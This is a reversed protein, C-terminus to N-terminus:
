RPDNIPTMRLIAVPVDISVSARREKSTVGIPTVPRSDFSLRRYRGECGAQIVACEEDGPQGSTLSDQEGGSPTSAAAAVTAASSSSYGFDYFGATKPSRDRNRRESNTNTISDNNNNNSINNANKRSSGPKTEKLRTLKAAFTEAIKRLANEDKSRKKQGAANPLSIQTSASSISKIDDLDDPVFSANDFPQKQKKPQELSDMLAPSNPDLLWTNQSTQQDESQLIAAVAVNQESVNPDLYDDKSSRRRTCRNPAKFCSSGRPLVCCARAFKTWCSEDSDGQQQGAGNELSIISLQRRIYAQAEIRADSGVSARSGVPLMDIPANLSLNSMRRLPPGVNVSSADPHHTAGTTSSSTMTTSNEIAPTTSGPTAASPSAVATHTVPAVSSSPNSSSPSNM